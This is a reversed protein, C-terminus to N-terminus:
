EPKLHGKRVVAGWRESESKVLRAFDEAAGGVVENSQATINERVGKDALAQNLAANLKDLIEKPTGRPAVLGNWNQVQVAPLGLEVFTPLDPFLPSRKPLTIALPRLRGSEIAPKAAYMQEFMMDVNGAMLDTAAAAGSKYPIHVMKIGASQEFLAGSLHHTGGIGGSGYTLVDPKARAATVIDDVTKYPADKRVMLVLPGRDILGIPALDAQPDFRLNGFLTKNVAMPAFNGMGITYGDPKARVVFETGLNGGAGPKNDVVVPQGLLPSLKQAIQRARTDAGGGAGYPVVLVIPKSPWADAALACHTPRAAVLALLSACVARRASASYRHM